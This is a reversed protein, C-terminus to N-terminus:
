FNRQGRRNHGRKRKIARIHVRVTNISRGLEDAIQKDQKGEKMHLFVEREAPTLLTHAPFFERAEVLARERASWVWGSAPLPKAELLAATAEVVQELETSKPIFGIAGAEFGKFIWEQETLGSLLIVKDALMGHAGHSGDLLALGSEQGLNIDLLAADFRDGARLRELAEAPDKAKAVLYGRKELADAIGDLVLPHDDIVIIRPPAASATRAM